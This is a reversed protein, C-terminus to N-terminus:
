TCAVKGSPVAAYAQDKPSAHGDSPLAQKFFQAFGQRSRFTDTPTTRAAWSDPSERGWCGDTNENGM